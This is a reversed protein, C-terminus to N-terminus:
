RQRGVLRSLVPSRPPPPPVARARHACRAPGVIRGVALVFIFACTVVLQTGSASPSSCRGPISCGPWVREGLRLRSSSTVATVHARSTVAIGLPAQELPGRAPARGLIELRAGRPITIGHGGSRGASPAHGAGEGPAASGIGAAGSCSCASRGCGGGLARGCRGMIARACGGPRVDRPCRARAWVSYGRCSAESKREIGVLQAARSAGSHAEQRTLSARAAGASASESRIRFSGKCAEVRKERRPQVEQGHGGAGLGEDRRQASRDAQSDRQSGEQRARSRPRWGPSESPARSARPRVHAPQKPRTLLAPSSAARPKPPADTPAPPVGSNGAKHWARLRGPNRRRTQRSYIGRVATRPPRSAHQAPPSRSPAM